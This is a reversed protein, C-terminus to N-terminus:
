IQLRALKGNWEEDEMWCIQTHIMEEKLLQINNNQLTTDTLAFQFRVVTLCASHWELKAAVNVM